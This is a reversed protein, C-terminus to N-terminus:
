ASRLGWAVDAEVATRAYDLEEVVERGLESVAKDRGLDGALYAHAIQRRYLEALGEEVAQAVIEAEPRGTARVLYDLKGRMNRTTSM